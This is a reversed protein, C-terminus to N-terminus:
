WRLCSSIANFVGGYRPLQCNARVCARALHLQPLAGTALGKGPVCLTGNNHSSVRLDMCVEEMIRPADQASRTRRVCPTGLTKAPGDGLGM